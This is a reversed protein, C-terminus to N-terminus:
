RWDFHDIAHHELSRGEEAAQNFEKPIPQQLHKVEVLISAPSSIGCAVM